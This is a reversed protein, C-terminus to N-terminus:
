AMLLQSQELKAHPSFLRVHREIHAMQDKVANPPVGPPTYSVYLVHQTAKTIPSRNDQGYLISCCLGQRDRMVMDGACISKSTGNMLIMQDGQQSVDMVVPEALKDADHGATLIFTNVEAAFNSDVLPSVDPLNRGGSLISELQLLVHYTKDFRKYYRAYAAMVPHALLDQRSCNVFDKRLQAEIERKRQNLASCPLSTNDVEALELLGIIAGRHAANWDATGTITIM